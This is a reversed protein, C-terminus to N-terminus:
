VARFVALDTNTVTGLTMYVTPTPSGREPAGARVPLDAVWGPLREGGAADYPVPRIREIPFSGYGDVTDLSAPGPSLPLGDSLGALPAPPVGFSAWLPPLAAARLEGRPVAPRPRSPRAFARALPVLPHFHGVAPASVVM